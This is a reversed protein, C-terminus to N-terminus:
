WFFVSWGKSGDQIADTDVASWDPQGLLLNSPRTKQLFFSGDSFISTETADDNTIIKNGDQSYLEKWTDCRKSPFLHFLGELAKEMRPHSLVEATFSAYIKFM